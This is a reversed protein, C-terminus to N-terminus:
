SIYQKTTNQNSHDFEALKHESKIIINDAKSYLTRSINLKHAIPHYVTCFLYRGFYTPRKYVNTSFADDAERRLFVDLFALSGLAEIEKTCQITSNIANLYKNFSEIHKTKMIAYLDDVYRVWISPPDPFINLVRKELDEIVMNAIMSSLPLGLPTGFVQKYKQCETALFQRMHLLILKFM